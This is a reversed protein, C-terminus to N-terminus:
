ALSEIIINVHILYDLNKIGISNSRLKNLNKILKEDKYIGIIALVYMVPIAFVFVCCLDFTGKVFLKLQLFYLIVNGISVLTGLVCMLMQRKRDKYLFIIIGALIISILTTLLIVTNSTATLMYFQNNTQLGSYFSLKMTTIGCIVAICLWLTQIRQIM